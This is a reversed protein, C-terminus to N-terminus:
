GGIVGGGGGIVLFFQRRLWKSVLIPTSILISSVKGLSFSLILVSNDLSLVSHLKRVASHLNNGVVSVMLIPKNSIDSVLSLGVRLRDVLGGDVRHGMVSDVGSGHDGVVSDVVGDVGRNNSWDMVGDVRNSGHDGVMSDVSDVGWDNGGDMMGSVVTNGEVM